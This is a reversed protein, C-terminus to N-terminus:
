KTGEEDGIYGAEFEEENTPGVPVLGALEDPIVVDLLEGIPVVKLEEEMTVCGPPGMILTEVGELPGAPVLGKTDDDELSLLEDGACVM